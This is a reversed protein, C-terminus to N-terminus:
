SSETTAMAQFACGDIGAGFDGPDPGVIRQARPELQDIWVVRM